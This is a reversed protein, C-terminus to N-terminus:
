APGSPEHGIVKRESDWIHFCEVHFQISGRYPSLTIGEMILQAKTVIEGCADFRGGCRGDCQENPATSQFEVIWDGM